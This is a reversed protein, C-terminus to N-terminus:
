GLGLGVRVDRIIRFGRFPWAISPRRPLKPRSRLRRVIPSGPLDRLEPHEPRMAVVNVFTCTLTGLHIKPVWLSLTEGEGYPGTTSCRWRSAMAFASRGPPQESVDLVGVVDVGHDDLTRRTAGVYAVHAVEHM